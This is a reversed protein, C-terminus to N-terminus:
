KTLCAKSNTSKCLGGHVVRAVTYWGPWRTGGQDGHVVRTVTYWGPWQTGGQGGYVVRDVTYWGPGSRYFKVQKINKM